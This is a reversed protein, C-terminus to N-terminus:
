RAPVTLLRLARRFDGGMSKWRALWYSSVVLYCRVKEAADIPSAHVGRLHEIFMRMVFFANSLRGANRPDFWVARDALSANALCSMGSHYRRLFLPEHIERFEGLLCMEGLFVTDSANYSGILRTRRVADLRMLGFVPNCLGYNPMAARLRLIIHEGQGALVQYRWWAGDRYDFGFEELVEPAVAQSYGQYVVWARLRTLMIQRDEPFAPNLNAALLADYRSRLGGDAYVRMVAGRGNTGLAM